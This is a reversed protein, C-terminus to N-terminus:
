EDPTAAPAATMVIHRRWAPAPTPYDTRYHAGRSEQRRWAAEVLLRGAIGLNLLEQMPKSTPASLHALLDDLRRRADHLGTEDRLLGAQEWLLSQLHARQTAIPTSQVLTTTPRSLTLTLALDALWPTTDDDDQSGDSGAGAIPQPRPQESFLGRVIREAFVIGELLSNSALRNAGHVATCAVEGAAFLGPVTTAGWIDTRVGGMYYHAAPAVPLLDHTIELGYTHCTAAITPFRELIHEAPLARLDLYACAHNSARMEAVIARAVVDRPALDALRHYDSMFAHGAANRLIAGEGRVAESILFSPAGALALATPHFQYFELDALAAGALAALALGDATAVAPNTTRQFLHGAGGTALVVAGATFTIMEGQRDLATLGNIRGQSTRTLSTVLHEEVITVATRRLTRGLAGAIHSGTADGGAHLIRNLGHAGERGLQLEGGADRDFDVGFRLLQEIARRGGDTLVQVPAMEALGAGAELTDQAHLRPNDNRGVAAAIGGQAFWTNSDHLGAKTILLVRGHESAFLATALGAIGSGVVVVDYHAIVPPAMRTSQALRGPLSSAPSGPSPTPPMCLSRAHPGHHVLQSVWGGVTLSHTTSIIPQCQHDVAAALAPILPSSGIPGGTWARSGSGPPATTLLRARPSPWCGIWPWGPMTPQRMM